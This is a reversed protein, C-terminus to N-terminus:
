CEMKCLVRVGPLNFFKGFSQPSETQKKQKCTEPQSNNTDWAICWHTTSNLSKLFGPMIKKLVQVMEQISLKHMFHPRPSM